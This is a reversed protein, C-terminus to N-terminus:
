LQPSQSISCTQIVEFYKCPVGVFRIDHCHQSTKYVPSFLEPQECMRNHYTGQLTSIIKYYKCEVCFNMKEM